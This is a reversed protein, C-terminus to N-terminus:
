KVGEIIEAERRLHKPSVLGYEASSESYGSALQLEEIADAAQRLRTSLPINDIIGQAIRAGVRAGIEAAKSAGPGLADLGESM